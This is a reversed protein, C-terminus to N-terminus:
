TRRDGRSMIIRELFYISVYSGYEDSYVIWDEEEQGFTAELIHRDPYSCPYYGHSCELRNTPDSISM